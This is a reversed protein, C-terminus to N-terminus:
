LVGGAGPQPPETFDRPPTYDRPPTRNPTGRYRDVVTRPGFPGVQVRPTSMVPVSARRRVLGPVQKRNESVEELKELAEEYKRRLSRPPDNGRRQMLLVAAVTSCQHKVWRNVAMDAAAYHALLYEEIVASAEDIVADSTSADDDVASSVGAVSLRSQIDALTCYTQDAVANV